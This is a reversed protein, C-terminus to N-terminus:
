SLRYVYMSGDKKEYSWDPFRFGYSLVLSGPKMEKLIKTQLKRMKPAVFFLTLVSVESLDVTWLNKRWVEVNKLKLRWIRFRSLFYLLPNIEIGICKAGTAAAALLIRGDGSGLDMLVQGSKLNAHSLLRVVNKKAMPVFPAASLMAFFTYFLFIILLFYFFVLIVTIITFYDM